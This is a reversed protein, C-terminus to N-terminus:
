GQRRRQAYREVRLNATLEHAAMGEAACMRAIMPAVRESAAATLRQYTVVKLFKGAWLGGTYRAARGTERGDPLPREPPDSRCPRNGCPRQPPKVPAATASNM